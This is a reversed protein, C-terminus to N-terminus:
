QWRVSTSATFPDGESIYRNDIPLDWTWQSYGTGTAFSGQDRRLALGGVTMTTWGSNAVESGIRWIIQRAVIGEPSETYFLEYFHLKSISAGAYVNSTGDSISGIAPSDSLGSFLSVPETGTNTQGRTITQTDLLPTGGSGAVAMMIGSVLREGACGM